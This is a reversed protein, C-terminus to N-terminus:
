GPADQQVALFARVGLGPTGHDRFYGSGRRNLLVTLQSPPSAAAKQKQSKFVTCCYIAMRFLFSDPGFADAAQSRM